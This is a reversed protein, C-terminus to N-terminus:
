INFSVYVHTFSKGLRDIEVQQKRMRAKSMRCYHQWLTKHSMRVVHLLLSHCYGLVRKKMSILTLTENQFFIITFCIQNGLVLSSELSDALCFSILCEHFVARFVRYQLCVFSFKQSPSLSIQAISKGNVVEPREFRAFTALLPTFFIPVDFKKTAENSANEWSKGERWHWLSGCM